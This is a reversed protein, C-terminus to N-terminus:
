NFFNGISLKGQKIEWCGSSHKQISVPPANSVNIVRQKHHGGDTLGGGGLGESGHQGSDGTSSSEGTNEDAIADNELAHLDEVSGQVSGM